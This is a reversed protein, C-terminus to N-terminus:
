IPRILPRFILGADRQALHLLEWWTLPSPPAKQMQKRLIPRRRLYGAVLQKEDKSAPVLAHLKKFQARNM